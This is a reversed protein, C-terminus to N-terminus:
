PRAWAPPGGAKRLEDELDALQRKLQEIEQQKATIKARQENIEGRTYQERMAKNPDSYYQQQNLNLERQLIDLEKQAMDLKARVEAFRKRWAGEDPGKKEATPAAEAGGAAVAASTEMAPAGAPTAGPSTPINDNTFVFKAKPANKKAERAKRAAEALNPEQQKPPTPQQAQASLSFALGLGLLAFFGKRM